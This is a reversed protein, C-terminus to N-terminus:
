SGAVVASSGGSNFKLPYTASCAQRTELQSQRLAAVIERQQQLAQRGILKLDANM